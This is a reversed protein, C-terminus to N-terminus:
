RSELYKLLSSKSEKAPPPASPAPEGGLQKRLADIQADIRRVEEALEDDGLMGFRYDRALSAKQRELTNIDREIEAREKAPQAVVARTTALHKAKLQAYSLNEDGDEYAGRARLQQLMVDRDTPEEKERAEIGREQRASVAGQSRIEKGRAMAYEAEEKSKPVDYARGPIPIADPDISWPREGLVRRAEPDRAIAALAAQFERDEQAARQAEEEKKKAAEKAEAREREMSKLAVRAVNAEHAAQRHLDGAANTATLSGQGAARNLTDEAVEAKRTAASLADMLEVEDTMRAVPPASPRASARPIRCSGGACVKPPPAQTRAGYREGTAATQLISKISADSDVARQLAETLKDDVPQGAERLRTLLDVDLRARDSESKLYDLRMRDKQMQQSADFQRREESLAAQRDKRALGLRREERRRDALRELGAAVGSLARGYPEVTQATLQSALAYPAMWGTSFGFQPIQVAM